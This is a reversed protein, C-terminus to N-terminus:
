TCDGHCCMQLTRTREAEAFTVWLNKRAVIAHEERGFSGFSEADGFGVYFDELCSRGLGPRCGVLVGQVLSSPFENPHDHTAEVQATDHAVM